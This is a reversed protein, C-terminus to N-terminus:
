SRRALWIASTGPLSLPRVEVDTYGAAHIEAKLTSSRLVGGAETSLLMQLDFLLAETPGLGDDHAVMERVVLLGGPKLAQQVRRLLAVRRESPESVLVGFILALDYDQGLDDVLFDGARLSIRDAVETAGIIERAVEVVPPLDFLTAQLHPYRRALAISYGGHGGGVDLVRWTVDDALHLAEAVAPAALRAWDYLAYTFGRVWDRADEMTRSPEPRHGTRVAEALHSWRAYFAAERRLLNGLYGDSGRAFCAATASANAYSDGARELLGLATAANLLRTLAALDLSLAEALASATKEGEALADFVGLVACTILVQSRRYGRAMELLPQHPRDVREREDVV